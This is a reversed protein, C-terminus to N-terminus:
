VDGRVMYESVDDQASQQLIAELNDFYKDTWGNVIKTLLIMLSVNAFIVSLIIIGLINESM